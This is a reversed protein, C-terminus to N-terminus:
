EEAGQAHGVARQKLRMQLEFGVPATLHQELSAHIDAMDGEREARTHGGEDDPQLITAGNLGSCDAM